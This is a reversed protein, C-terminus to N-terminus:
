RRSWPRCRNLLLINLMWRWNWRTKLPTQFMELLGKQEYAFDFGPQRLWDEYTRKSLVAIDRLPVASREVHQANASRMFKLGWDILGFNLRPKVYFPSEPNLMWKFGQKVIGPAAMPIFHSPCVYGANGYSCNNQFDGKDIVTVNWGSQQLFYASSLGIIGGGIVIVNM